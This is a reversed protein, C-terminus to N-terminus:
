KRRLLYIQEKIHKKTASEGNSNSKFRLYDVEKLEVEGVQGLAELIAKQPMIGESNYSLLLCKYKAEGAVKKLAEIATTPNCFVSKQEVYNRMGTIGKIEPNDYKAITELVHYNPAYQRENYPPDLYLVDM